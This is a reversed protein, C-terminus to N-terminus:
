VLAQPHASPTGSYTYPKLPCCSHSKRHSMTHRVNAGSYAGLIMVRGHWAPCRKVTPVHHTAAEALSVPCWEGEIKMECTQPKLKTM